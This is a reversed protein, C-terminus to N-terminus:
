INLNKCKDWPAHSIIQSIMGCSMSRGIRRSLYLHLQGLVYNGHGQLHLLFTPM